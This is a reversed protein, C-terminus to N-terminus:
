PVGAARLAPTGVKSTFVLPKHDLPGAVIAPVGPGLLLEERGRPRCGERMASPARTAPATTKISHLQITVIVVGVMDKTRCELGATDSYLIM